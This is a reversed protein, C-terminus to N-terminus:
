KKEDQKAQSDNIEQFLCVKYLKEETEKHDKLCAEVKGYKQARECNKKYKDLCHNTEMRVKQCFVERKQQDCFNLGTMIIKCRKQTFDISYDQCKKKQEKTAKSLDLNDINKGSSGTPETKVQKTKPSKAISVNNIILPLLVSLLVLYPIIRNFRTPKAKSSSQFM